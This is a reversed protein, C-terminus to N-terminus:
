MPYCLFRICPFSTLTLLQESVVIHEEVCISQESYFYRSVCRYTTALRAQNSNVSSHRLRAPETTSMLKSNKDLSSPCLPCFSPTLPTANSLMENCPNGETLVTYVVDTMSRVSFLVSCYCNLDRSRKQLKCSQLLIWNSLVVAPVGQNPYSSIDTAFLTALTIKETSLTSM